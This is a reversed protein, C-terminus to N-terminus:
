NGGLKDLDVVQAAPPAKIEAPKGYDEFDLNGQEKSKPGPALQLPVPEGQLSIYMVGGDVSDDVLGIAPVGHITKRQGKTLTGDPKLINTAMGTLSTFDALDKLKPDTASGKMYKGAFLKDAEPNGTLGGLAAGDAKLYITQGIRIVEIRNNGTVITGKGGEAGGVQIDLRLEEGESSSTGSIHVSKAKSLAAQAKALIETASLKDVGNEVSAAATTTAAPGASGSTTSTSGCGAVLMAAGALPVLFRIPRV